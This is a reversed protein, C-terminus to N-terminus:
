KGNYVKYQILVMSNIKFSQFTISLKNTLHFTIFLQIKRNELPILNSKQFYVMVIENHIITLM